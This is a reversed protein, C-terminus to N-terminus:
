AALTDSLLAKESVSESEASFKMICVAKEGAPRDVKQHVEYSSGTGETSLCVRGM